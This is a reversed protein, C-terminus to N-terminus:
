KKMVFYLILINKTFQNYHVLFRRVPDRAVRQLKKYIPQLFYCLLLYFIKQFIFYIYPHTTDHDTWYLQLSHLCLYYLSPLQIMVTYYCLFLICCYIETLQTIYIHINQIIQGGTSTIICKGDRKYEKYRYQVSIVTSM